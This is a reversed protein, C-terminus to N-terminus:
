ATSLIARPTTANPRNSAIFALAEDAPFLTGALPAAVISHHWRPTTTTRIM